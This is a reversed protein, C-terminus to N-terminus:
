QATCRYSVPMVQVETFLHLCLSLYPPLPLYFSLSSLDVSLCVSLYLHYLCIIWLHCISWLYISLHVSLRVSLNYIFLLHYISPHVSLHLIHILPILLPAYQEACPPCYKIIVKFLTDGKFM